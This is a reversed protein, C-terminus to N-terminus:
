AWPASLVSAAERMFIALSTRQSALPGRLPSPSSSMGSFSGPDEMMGPLTLGVWLSARVMSQAWTIPLSTAMLMPPALPAPKARLLTTAAEIRDLLALGLTKADGAEADLLCRRIRPLETKVSAARIASEIAYVAAKRESEDTEAFFFPSKCLDLLDKFYANSAATEILADAAAAARSTSLLWGTEDSVLVGERELLARVRRATLRDQAILAIRRMGANLWAGIQAVAALAEPERGATPVLQLRPSLEDALPSSPFRQALAQAREFLPTERDQPWAANLAQM